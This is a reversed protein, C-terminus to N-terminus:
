KNVTSHNIKRSCSRLLTGLKSRLEGVLCSIKTNWDLSVDRTTLTMLGAFSISVQVSAKEHAINGFLEVMAFYRHLTPLVVQLEASLTRYNRAIQEHKIQVKDIALAQM